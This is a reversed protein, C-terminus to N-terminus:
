PLRAAQAAARVGSRLAGEMLGYWPGATHEGAFALPGVPRALAEDDVPSSLSRASYAVGPWTSLVPEADAFLLDPRLAQVAEAWRQPGRWVELADLATGTGAFSAAVTLPGGDPARQTWTWFRGPVSLTASPEAPEALELFLKAAHGYRVAELARRKWDPLPPDFAIELTRPAPTALVCADAALEGRPTEVRVGGDRWVVRTVPTGPLVRDGLREALARALLDNGGAIGHSAFRGFAAAGDALVSAPQDDLQYATSVAVRAAIAERPGAAPVLERLADGISGTAARALAPVAAAVEDATTPTGGRPERHGYYTGKEYLRLGLREATATLLEYGQLVFEAGLEVVSGNPLRLSRVRGGVREEAELV